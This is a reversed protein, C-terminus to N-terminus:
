LGTIFRFIKTEHSLTSTVIQYELAGDACSSELVYARYFKEAKKLLVDYTILHANAKKIDKHLKVKRQRDVITTPKSTSSILEYDHGLILRDFEYFDVDQVIALAHILVAQFMVPLNEPIIEQRKNRVSVFRIDGNYSRFYESKTPTLSKIIFEDILWRLQITNPNSNLFHRWKHGHKKIYNVPYAGPKRYVITNLIYQPLPDDLLIHTDIYDWVDPLMLKEIIQLFIPYVLKRNLSLIVEVLACACPFFVSSPIASENLKRLNFLAPGRKFGVMRSESIQQSSNNSPQSYPSWSNKGM